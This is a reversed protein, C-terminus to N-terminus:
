QPRPPWVINLPYGTQLTIDRLGQRYVAWSEKTTLPVDPLQTWDSSQLLSNRRDLIAQKLNYENLVWQKTDYNFDHYPSPQEPIPVPIFNDIYFEKASYTGEIYSTDETLYSNLEELSPVLIPSIIKGTNVTYITYSYIM